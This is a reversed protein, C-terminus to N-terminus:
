VFKKQDSQRNDQRNAKKASATRGTRSNTDKVVGICSGVHMDGNTATTGGGYM